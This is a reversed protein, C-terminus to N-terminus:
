FWGDLVWIMPKYGWEKGKENKDVIIKYYGKRQIIIILLHNKKKKPRNGKSTRSSHLTDIPYYTRLVTKSYFM